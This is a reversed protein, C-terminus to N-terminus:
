QNECLRLKRAAVSSVHIAVVIMLCLHFCSMDHAKNM